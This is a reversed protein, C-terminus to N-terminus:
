LIASIGYVSALWVTNRVLIGSILMIWGRWGFKNYRVVLVGVGVGGVPFGPPKPIAGLAFVIELGVRSPDQHAGSLRRLFRSVRGNNNNIEPLVNGAIKKADRVVAKGWMSLAQLIERSWRWKLIVTVIIQDLCFNFSETILMRTIIEALSKGARYLLIAGTECSVIMTITDLTEKAFPLQSLFHYIIAYITFIVIITALPHKVTLYRLLRFFGRRAM